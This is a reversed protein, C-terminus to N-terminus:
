SSVWAAESWTDARRSLSWTMMGHALGPGECWHPEIGEESRVTSTSNLIGGTESFSRRAMGCCWAKRGRRDSPGCRCGYVTVLGTTGKARLPGPAGICDWDIDISKVLPSRM